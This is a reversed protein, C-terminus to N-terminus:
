EDGRPTMVRKMIDKIRKGFLDNGFNTNSGTMELGSVGRTGTWLDRMASAIQGADNPNFYIAASGSQERMAYIDSLAMPKNMARAELPPINTPGFFSPYILGSSYHYLSAMLEDSVYELFTVREELRNAKM